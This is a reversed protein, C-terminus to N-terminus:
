RNTIIHASSQNVQVRYNNIYRVEQHREAALTPDKLNPTETEAAIALELQSWPISHLNTLEQEELNNWCNSFISSACGDLGIHTVHKVDTPFGIELDMEPQLEDKYEFFQSFTKFNKFLKHFRSLSEEDDLYEQKDEKGEDHTGSLAYKHNNKIAKLASNMNSFQPGESELMLGRFKAAEEWSQNASYTNSVLLYPDAENPDLELLKKSVWNTMEVNKHLWCSSLYTRWVERLHHIGNEYVFYKIEKLHGARGFLDVMCAFHEIDPRIGYVDIMMKFYKCGDEVLGAHSCATLLGVLSVENPIIGENRMLEFLQIAEKGLGHMAYSSIMVSWLVINRTKNQRFFSWADDLKGCKAYMDIMSSCLIVDQGHGLKLTRAHIQQGLELLATNASAAVITTLTFLDVELQEHMMSSFYVLADKIMGHQVYGSIMTSWSVTQAMLDNHDGKSYRLRLERFIVSAKEMEGCKCYMDLLATSVFSDEDIGIRLLRGHIQRGLKLSKISASLVLSISFTVRDFTPGLKVMEYLLELANREFGQQLLGDIITNWSSVNKIPLRWFFDLSEEMEGKSLNAAMVINWSTSDKGDMLEFLRKVYHFMRFKAYLDLVANQLAVDVDIGNRIIWGHIAKGMLLGNNVSACCKLVSSLTFANPAVRGENQMETFYDLAIRHHGYRSFGSILITWTRVDREPIEDFLKRANELDSNKLYLSLLYNVVQLVRASGNKLLTSHYAQPSCHPFSSYSVLHKIKHRSNIIGTRTLSFLLKVPM